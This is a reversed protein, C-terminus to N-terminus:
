PLPTKAMWAELLGEKRGEKRSIECRPSRPDKPGGDLTRARGEYWQQPGANWCAVVLVDASEETGRSAPDKRIM